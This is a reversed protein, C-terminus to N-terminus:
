IFFALGIRPNTHCHKSKHSAKLNCCDIANIQTLLKRKYKM